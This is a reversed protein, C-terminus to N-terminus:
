NHTLCVTSINILPTFELISYTHPGVSTIGSFHGTAGLILPFVSTMVEMPSAASPVPQQSCRDTTNRHGDAREGPADRTWTGTVM